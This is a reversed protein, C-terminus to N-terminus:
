KLTKSRAGPSQGTQVAPHLHLAEEGGGDGVELWHALLAPDEM